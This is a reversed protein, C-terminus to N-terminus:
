RKQKIMPEPIPEPLVMIPEPLVIIPEPLVIIPEPLVIIPEPLLDPLVIIIPEPLLDPLVSIQDPLVTIPEPLPLVTIQHLKKDVIISEESVKYYLNEQLLYRQGNYSYYTM